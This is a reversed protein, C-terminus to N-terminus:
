VNPRDFAIGGPGACVLSQCGISTFGPSRGRFPQQLARETLGQDGHQRAIGDVETKLAEERRARLVLKVLEIPSQGYVEPDAQHTIPQQPPALFSMSEMM